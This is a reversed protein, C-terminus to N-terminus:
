ITKPVLHYLKTKPNLVRKLKMGRFELIMAEVVAGVRSGRDLHGGYAKGKSDALAAHAHIVTEGNEKISVNGMCSIIELPKDMSITRYVHETQDFYKLKANKLTGILNFAAAEIKERRAVRELCELVGQGEELNAFLVRKISGEAWVCSM